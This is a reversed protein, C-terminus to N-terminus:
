ARSVIPLPARLEPAFFQGLLRFALLFRARQNHFRSLAFGFLRCHGADRDLWEKAMADHGIPVLALHEAVKGSLRVEAVERQRKFVLRTPSSAGSLEFFIERGDFSIIRTLSNSSSGERVTAIIPQEATV